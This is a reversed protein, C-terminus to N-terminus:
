KWISCKNMPNMPSNAPCNFAAAFVENNSVAGNVRQKSPSHEDSMAFRKIYEPGENACWSNGFAVFFLQEETFRQLGPVTTTANRNKERFLKYANWAVILGITDSINEGMTFNGDLHMVEEGDDYIIYNSFQTGFCQANEQYKDIASQPWWTVVNGNKDYRRGKSDLSHCLEHGITAGLVAYNMISPLNQDYIPPQIIGTPVQMANATPIYFANVETPEAPWTSKDTPKRLSLVQNRKVFVRRAIENDFYSDFAPYQSYYEDINAASYYDPYSVFKAMKHVKDMALNKTQEDLWSSQAIQEEVATQINTVMETVAAKVEPSSYKTTFAYSLARQLPPPEACIDIRDPINDAGVRKANLNQSLYRVNDTSFLSLEKIVRWIIYNVITEPPTKALFKPLEKFFNKKLVVIKESGDVTVEPALSVIEAIIELWNIKATPSTTPQSDSIAQLEDITMLNYLKDLDDLGQEGKTLEALDREFKRLDELQASITLGEPSAGSSKQLKNAMILKFEEYVQLAPDDAPALLEASKLSLLPEGVTLRTVSSNKPDAEIDVSFITDISLLKFVQAAVRQWTLNQSKWEDPKMILPWGGITETIARIPDVGAKEIEEDNMCARYIRRSKRMAQTDSESDAAKLIAAIKPQLDQTIVQYNTWRDYGDAMPHYETWHGCTYAYFDDCPNKTEDLSRLIDDGPGVPTDRKVPLSHSLSLITLIFIITFNYFNYAGFRFM